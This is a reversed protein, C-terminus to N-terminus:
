SKPYPSSLFQKASNVTACFGFWPTRCRSYMTAPTSKKPVKKQVLLLFYMFAIQRIWYTKVEKHEKQRSAFPYDSPNRFFFWPSVTGIAIPVAPKAPGVCMFVGVNQLHIWDNFRCSSTTAEHYAFCRFASDKESAFKLFAISSYCAFFFASFCEESISVV